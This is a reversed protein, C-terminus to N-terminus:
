VEFLEHRGEGKVYSFYKKANPYRCSSELQILLHDDELCAELMLASAVSTLVKWLVRM